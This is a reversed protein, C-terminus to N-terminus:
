LKQQAERAPRGCINDGNRHRVCQADAYTMGNRHRVRRADAYTINM